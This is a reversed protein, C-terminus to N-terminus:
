FGGSGSMGTWTLPTSHLPSSSESMSQGENSSPAERLWHSGPSMTSANHKLRAAPGSKSALELRREATASRADHLLLLYCWSLKRSCSRGGSGALRCLKPGTTPPRSLLQGRRRFPRPTSEAHGGPNRVCQVHGGRKACSSARHTLHLQRVPTEM